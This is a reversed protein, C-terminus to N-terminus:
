VAEESEREHSKVTVVDYIEERFINACYLCKRPIQARANLGAMAYAAELSAIGYSSSIPAIPRRSARASRLALAVAHVPDEPSRRTRDLARAVTM